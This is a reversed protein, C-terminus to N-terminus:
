SCLTQAGISDKMVRQKLTVTAPSGLKGNVHAQWLSAFNSRCLLASGQGRRLGYRTFAQPGQLSSM